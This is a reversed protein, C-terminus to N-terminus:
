LNRWSFLDSSWTTYQACVFRQQILDQVLGSFKGMLVQKTKTKKNKKIKDQLIKILCTCFHWGSWPLLSGHSSCSSQKWTGLWQWMLTQWVEFWGHATYPLSDWPGVQVVGYIPLRTIMHWVCRPLPASQIYPHFWSSASFYVTICSIKKMTKDAKEDYKLIATWLMIAFFFLFCM